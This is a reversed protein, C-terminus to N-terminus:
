LEDTIEITKIYEFDKSINNIAKEETPWVGSTLLDKRNYHRYINVWASKVEVSLFLDNYHKSNWDLFCGDKTWKAIRNELCGYVIYPNEVNTFFHLQTIEKGESTVVKAGNRAKQLDFKELKM